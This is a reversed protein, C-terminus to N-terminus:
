NSHKHGKDKPETAYVWILGIITMVLLIIYLEM